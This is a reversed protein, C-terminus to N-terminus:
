EAAFEIVPISKNAHLNIPMLTSIPLRPLNFPSACRPITVVNQGSTWYTPVHRTILKSDMHFYHKIIM